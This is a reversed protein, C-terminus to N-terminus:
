RREAVRVRDNSRNGIRVVLLYLIELRSLNLTFFSFHCPYYVFSFWIFAVKYKDRDSFLVREAASTM